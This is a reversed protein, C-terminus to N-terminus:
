SKWIKMVEDSTAMDFRKSMFRLSDEHAEADGSGVCDNLMVIYYDYFLGDRATSEVCGETVMGTMILTKINSNKLVLDMTTGIFGSSRHKRIRVDGPEPTIEDVVDWGWSGELTFMKIDNPDNSGRANMLYRIRPPSENRFDPLTTHSLYVVLVGAERAAAITQKVRGLMPEYMPVAFSVSGDENKRKCFDNQIDVIVLAAHKPDVLEDISTLIEKGYFLKM